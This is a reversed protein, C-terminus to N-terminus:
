GAPTGGGGGGGPLVKLKGTMFDDVEQPTAGAAAATAAGAGGPTWDPTRIRSRSSSTLGFEDGILRAQARAEKAVQIMPHKVKVGERPGDIMLGDEQYRRTARVALSHAACYNALMSGDLSTLVGVAVLQPVVRDWEKRAEADLWAPRDPVGPPPAMENPAARDPRYSGQLQKLKSPKPPPGRKGM